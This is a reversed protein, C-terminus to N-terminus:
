ESKQGAPTGTRVYKRLVYKLMDLLFVWSIIYIGLSIFIFDWDNKPQRLIVNLFYSGLVIRVLFFIVFFTIETSVFVATSRRGATTLFWRIQLFPNTLEMCGLSCTAQAGSYGKFIIRSLSFVCLIHHCLMIKDKRDYMWTWWTDHLFYGISMTLIFSQVYNTKWEPHDFPSDLLFCQNIGMFGSMFGHIFSVIRSSFEMSQNQFFYRFILYLFRWFLFSIFLSVPSEYNIYGNAFFLNYNVTASASIIEEKDEM